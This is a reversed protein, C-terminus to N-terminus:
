YKCADMFSQLLDGKVRFKWVKEYREGIVREHVVKVALWLPTGSLLADVQKEDSVVVTYCKNRYYPKGNVRIFPDIGRKRLPEFEMNVPRKFVAALVEKKECYTM